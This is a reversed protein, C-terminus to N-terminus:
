TSKVLLIRVAGRVRLSGAYTASEIITEKKKSRFENNSMKGLIITRQLKIISNLNTTFGFCTM